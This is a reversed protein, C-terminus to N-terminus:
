KKIPTVPIAYKATTQGGFNFRPAINDAYQLGYKKPDYKQTAKLVSDIAPFFDEEKEFPESEFYLMKCAELQVIEYNKPLQAQYDMPVEVGSAINSYGDKKLHEPLELIAATDFKSPISNLLGEWECGLEECYSFYDTAEKARLFLLKRQPREVVSIMCLKTEEKMLLEEKKLQYSYYSKIPYQIFLPIPKPNTRYNKPTVGFATQFARTYGEHTEYNSEIAIELIKKDTNLIEKSSNSIKIAKVYEKPTKGILEKFIRDAHRHSYGVYLYMKELNCDEKLINEKIYDQMKQVVEIKSWYVKM